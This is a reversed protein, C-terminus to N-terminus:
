PVLTLSIAGYEGLQDQAAYTDSLITFSFTLQTSGRSVALGLTGAVVGARREASRSESFFAGDVPLSRAVGYGVLDLFAYTADRHARPAELVPTALFGSRVDGRGFDRPITDGVRLTTGARAGTFYTGLGVGLDATWDWELGGVRSRAFRDTREVSLNLIPENPIEHKWGRPRTAGFNRHFAKQISETDLAPGVFGLRLTVAAMSDPDVAIRSLDVAVIGAYPHADPPPNKATLDEPTFILHAFTSSSRRASAPLAGLGRLAGEALRELLGLEGARELPPSLFSFLLANTYNGDQLGLSDNEVAMTTQSGPRGISAPATCSALLTGALIWPLWARAM